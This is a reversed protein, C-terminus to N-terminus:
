KTEKMLSTLKIIYNVIYIKLMKSQKCLRSAVIETIAYLWTIGMFTRYLIFM